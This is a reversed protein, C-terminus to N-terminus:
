VCDLTVPEHVIDARSMVINVTEWTLVSSPKLSIIVQRGQYMENANFEFETGLATMFNDLLTTGEVGKIADIEELLSLFELKHTKDIEVRVPITLNHSNKILALFIKMVARHADKSHYIVNKLANLQKQTIKKM